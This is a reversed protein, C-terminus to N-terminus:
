RTVAKLTTVEVETMVGKSAPSQRVVLKISSKDQKYIRPVSLVSFVERQLEEIIADRLQRM